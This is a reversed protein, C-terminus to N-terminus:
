VCRSTYLLCIIYRAHVSNAYDRAQEKASLPHINERKAELVAIPFKDSGLLLYDIFGSTTHEFDDGFSDIDKQSIKVNPELQINSKGKENDFFRWGAEDLLKNIRIRAKAEKQNPM